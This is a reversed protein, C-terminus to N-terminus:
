LFDKQILAGDPVKNVHRHSREPFRSAFRPMKVLDGTTYEGHIGVPSLLEVTITQSTLEVIQGRGRYSLGNEIWAVYVENQLQLQQDERDAESTETIM